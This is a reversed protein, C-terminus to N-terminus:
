TSLRLTQRVVIGSLDSVNNSNELLLTVSNATRSLIKVLGTKKRNESVKHTGCDSSRKESKSPSSLTALLPSVITWGRRYGMLWEVFEPNMRQGITQEKINIQTELTM